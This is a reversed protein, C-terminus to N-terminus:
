LRRYVILKKLSHNKELEAAAEGSFTMGASLAAVEAAKDEDHGALGKLAILQGGRKLFSSAFVILQPLKLAARSIVTDFKAVWEKGAALDEIRGRIVTVETLKLIRVIHSLFSTKKRSADVLVVNLDPAMIKLPIGPFGGGSGLDLLFENEKKLLPLPTLSDIFHREIIEGASHESILNIQRNWFLLEQYYQM